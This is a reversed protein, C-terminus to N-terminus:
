SLSSLSTPHQPPTVLEELSYIIKNLQLLLIQPAGAPFRRRPLLFEDAVEQIHIESSVQSAEWQLLFVSSQPPCAIKFLYLFFNLTAYSLLPNLTGISPRWAGESIFYSIGCIQQKLIKWEVGQRWFNDKITELWDLSWVINAIM